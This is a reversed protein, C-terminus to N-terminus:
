SIPTMPIDLTGAEGDVCLMQLVGDAWPEQGGAEMRPFEALSLTLVHRCHVTGHLWVSWGFWFM